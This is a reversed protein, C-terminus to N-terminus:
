RYSHNPTYVWGVIGALNDYGDPLTPLRDPEARELHFYRGNGLRKMEIVEDPDMVNTDFTKIVAGRHVLNYQM